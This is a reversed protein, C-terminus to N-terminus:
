FIRWACIFYKQCWAGTCSRHVVKGNGSSADIMTGDGMAIAVHGRFVIVDGRQLSSLSSVKQYKSVSRWGSSTLYGQSVGAQRLCWYVLGSCDFTDPGKGGRVYKCGLRSEAASIFASVSGGSSTYSPTSSSGSGSSSGSDSSGSVAEGTNRVAGDSFLVTMTKRGVKGDASLGNLKQFAAVASFTDSGYYGTVKKLYGLEKLRKQVREVTSGSLGITMANAQADSSMLLERTSPGIYGDAILGNIQQFLKVAAVTDKGFTGDPETTLYGLKYLRKQYALVEDSKEGYSIAHPIADESYLAERTLEGVKGDVDLNNRSQFERVAETTDSGFYGTAADLYDLERLRKQLEKVDTGSIGEMVMYKPASNAMLEDYIQQNVVGDTEVGLTRQFLQVAEETNPGFLETPEDPDMYGLDMLREQLEAVQTGTTERQMILPEPTVTTATANQEPAPTIVLSSLDVVGDRVEASTSTGVTIVSEAAAPWAPSNSLILLAPVLCVAVAAIGTWMLTVPNKAKLSRIFARLLKAPANPVAQLKNTKKCRQKM